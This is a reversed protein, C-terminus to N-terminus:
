LGTGHLQRGRSDDDLLDGNYLILQSAVSSPGSGPVLSCNSIGGVPTPPDKLDQWGLVSVLRTSDWGRCHTFQELGVQLSPQIFVDFGVGRFHTSQEPGVEVEFSRQLPQVQVM